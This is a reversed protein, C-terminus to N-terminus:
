LSFKAFKVNQPTLDNTTRKIIISDITLINWNTLREHYYNKLKIKEILREFVLSHDVLRIWLSLKEIVNEIRTTISVTNIYNETDYSLLVLSLIPFSWSKQSHAWSIRKDFIMQLNPKIIICDGSLSHSYHRLNNKPCYLPQILIQLSYEKM